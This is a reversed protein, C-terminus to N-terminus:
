PRMFHPSEQCQQPIDDTDHRNHGNDTDEVTRIGIDLVFHDAGAGTNKLYVFNQNWETDGDVIDKSNGRVFIRQSPIKGSRLRNRIELEAGAGITVEVSFAEFNDTLTLRALGTQLEKLTKKLDFRLYSLVDNAMGRFEKFELFKM